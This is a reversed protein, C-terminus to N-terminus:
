SKETKLHTIIFNKNEADKDKIKFPKIAFYIKTMAGVQKSFEIGFFRLMKDILEFSAMQRMRRKEDLKIAINDVHGTFAPNDFLAVLCPKEMVTGSGITVYEFNLNHKIFYAGFDLRYSNGRTNGNAGVPGKNAIITARLDYPKEIKEPGARRHNLRFDFKSTMELMFEDMSMPLETIDDDEEQSSEPRSLTPSVSQYPGNNEAYHVIEKKAEVPLVNKESRNSIAEEHIAHQKEISEKVLKNIIKVFTKDKSYNFGIVKPPIGAFPNKSANSGIITKIKELLKLFLTLDEACAIELVPKNVDRVFGARLVILLSSQYKAIWVEGNEFGDTVEASSYGPPVMAAHFFPKWNM